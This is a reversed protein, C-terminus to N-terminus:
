LILFTRGVAPAANYATNGGQNATVTCIGLRLLAIAAGNTGGATCVTPTTTTFTVALGSSATATVTVPSQALTKAALTAFTITQAAKSVAFSRGVAVAPNYVTNGAQNANVTCTGAALLAIAAGNTGGATCVTPTTTTFTVALGSSATATVTVPSQALTKAALTAFTITQAAKSVAFSRGVAVAPNYVTNGAQNANVTCTGAALLAIAAGNTGGATCVTPTTTTFTVALGSSATATVTM